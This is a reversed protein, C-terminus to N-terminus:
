QMMMKYVMEKLLSADTTDADHIGVTRLNYHHLLVLAREVGDFSYNRAASMFDKVFFPQVGLAAAVSKEDSGMHNFVIMTKSFLNYLTPLILQIPAAKPNSEFYQIIRMAKSLDKYALAKQLEFANYEKSIGVYREIDDENITKRAALNVLIKEIENELRSLDNGVHDVLLQAAKPDIAFGKSRVMEYTWEPLQNDYLKKTTLVEAVKKLNRAMSSRGDLKKEKHAVVLVTSALPRTIYNELKDIDRMQQAEKLIVVQREAFMPYRMCANVIDSWAADKGYFVTLNFSAEAEPLIRHEAYDVLKDIYYDEEGELWYVPKFMMKKWDGLIKEASM